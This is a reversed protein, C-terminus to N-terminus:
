SSLENPAVRLLVALRRVTGPLHEMPVLRCLQRLSYMGAAFTLPIGIAMLVLASAWFTAVFAITILTTYGVAIWRTSVSWRFGTLRQVVIRILVVYFLYLGLFAVGTGALGFRSLGIWTLLLYVANAALETLFFLKKEGRALLVYGMPWSLVRLFMGLCNWQLLEAALHFKSSYFLQIVMPALTLTGLVGPGALLLGVETQENVLRNTVATDAGAASLRPYFDAGMAQLVIGVYLGSITWAAQFQGAQDLGLERVVLVRVIYAAGLTLLGAGMLVFGLQILAWSGTKFQAWSLQVAEVKVKRAYWWSSLAGCAAVCVLYIAIGRQGFVYVIPISFITGYLSGLVSLRALDGIRRVGQVLAGQGASVTSFFIAIGLVMIAPAYTPDSFTFQAIPHALAALAIGGLLGLILSVRRLVFVTVAIRTTDGTGVSDAIQRVGSTNVGMGAITKGLDLVSSYLGAIGIGAPGLLVALVKTRVIGLLINIVSSGGIVASSKVIRGYSSSTEGATQGPSVSSGCCASRATM